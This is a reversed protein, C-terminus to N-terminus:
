KANKVDAWLANYIVLLPESLYHITDCNAIDSDTPNMVLNSRYDDGMLEIAGTNPSSYGIADCNLKAIDPRCLFDLFKEANTKNKADKPIVMCDVWVNSGEKPIVYALDPNQSIAFQADGSWMVGMTAEGAIMKDKTEDVQYAKVIGDTKQKILLDKAAELAGIDDSNMSYGLYKLAIGMTNRISDMMIVEGAYQADWLAGWSDIPASVKTTNYVIGTTGWMYPVSHANGADYSPDKLNDLIYSMNPINSYDIEALMDEALLREVIYDSPFCVDITGPNAEITVLMEENTTCYMPNVHIGTEEEFLQFVSEDIYDYWNLVNVTEQAVGAAPLLLALTLVLALVKKM